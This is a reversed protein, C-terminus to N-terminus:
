HHGYYGLDSVMGELNAMPEVMKWMCVPPKAPALIPWLNPIPRLSFDERFGELLSM